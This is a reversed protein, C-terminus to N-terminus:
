VDTSAGFLWCAVHHDIGTLYTSPEEQSCIEMASPCRPHFRCGAPPDVASPVEGALSILGEVGRVTPDPISGFLARTYPHCPEDFVAEAPGWEALKGLYRVAIKNALYRVVSLDHSVVIYTLGLREKLDDLLLLIQHQSLVDIASTPEDLVVLRPELSLTRAIAIRQRLGGSFEHPYKFLDNGGMGVMELAGVVAKQYADGRLHDHVRLPEGVIDRVLWRPNLSWFPDQFVVQVSRRLRHKERTNMRSIDHGDYLIRGATLPVLMVIGNVVTTKGCGSEGVLGLSDGGELALSVGDVARVFAPSRRGRVPFYIKVDEIALLADTM